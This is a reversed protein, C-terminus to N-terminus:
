AFCLVATQLRQTPLLVRCDTFSITVSTAANALMKPDSGAYFSVTALVVWPESECPFCAPAPYTHTQGLTGAVQKITNCWTTEETKANVYSNPLQWLVKIEFSDRVRSYECGTEDCGCGAPHVRVPRSYCEAYRVAVYVTAFGDSNVAPM